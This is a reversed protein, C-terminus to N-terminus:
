KSTLRYAGEMIDQLIQVFSTFARSTARFTTLDSATGVEVCVERIYVWPYM